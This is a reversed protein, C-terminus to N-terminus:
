QHVDKEPNQRTDFISSIFITKGKLRYYLRKNKGILVFYVSKRKAAKRGITPYSKLVEIKDFVDNAFNSAAQFSFNDSLYNTTEQFTKFARKNWEVRYPKAM